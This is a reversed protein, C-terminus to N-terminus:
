TATVFSAKTAFTIEQRSDAGTYYFRVDDIGGMYLILSSVTTMRVPFGLYPQSFAAQM